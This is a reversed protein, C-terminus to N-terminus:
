LEIVKYTLFYPIPEIPLLELTEAALVVKILQPPLYGNPTEIQIKAAGVGIIKLKRPQGKLDIISICQYNTSITIYHQVEFDMFTEPKVETEDDSLPRVESKQTLTIKM